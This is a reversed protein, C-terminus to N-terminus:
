IGLVVMYLLALVNISITQSALQIMGLIGAMITLAEFAWWESCIMMTAPLSVSLYERWGRFTEHDLPQLVSNIQPAVKCYIIVVALLIAEKTTTAYALGVVGLDFGYVFLLCLPVHIIAAIISAVM